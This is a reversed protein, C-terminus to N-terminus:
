VLVGDATAGIGLSCAVDLQAQVVTRRAEAGADVGIDHRSRETGDDAAQVPLNRRSFAIRILLPLFRCSCHGHTVVVRSSSLCRAGGRLASCDGSWWRPPM